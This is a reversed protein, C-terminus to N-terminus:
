RIKTKNCGIISDIIIESIIVSEKSIQFLNLSLLVKLFPKSFWNV